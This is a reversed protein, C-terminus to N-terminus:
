HLHRLKENIMKLASDEFNEDNNKPAFTMTFEELNLPRDMKTLYTFIAELLVDSLNNDNLTKILKIFNERNIIKNSGYNCFLDEPTKESM